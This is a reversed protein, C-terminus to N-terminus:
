CYADCVQVFTMLIFCRRMSQKEVAVKQLIHFAYYNKFCLAGPVSGMCSNQFKGGNGETMFIPIM